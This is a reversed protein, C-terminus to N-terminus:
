RTWRCRNTSIWHEIRDCLCYLSPINVTLQYMMIVM